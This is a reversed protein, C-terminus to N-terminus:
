LYDDLGGINMTKPDWDLGGWFVALCGKFMGGKVKLARVFYPEGVWVSRYFNSRLFSLFPDWFGLHVYFRGIYSYFSNSIINMQNMVNM